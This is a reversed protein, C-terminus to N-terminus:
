FPKLSLLRLYDVESTKMIKHKRNLWGFLMSRVPYIIGIQWTLWYYHYGNKNKFIIARSTYSPLSALIADPGYGLWAINRHPQRWSSDTFQQDQKGNYYTQEDIIEEVRKWNEKDVMKCLRCNQPCFPTPTWKQPSTAESTIQLSLYNSILGVEPMNIKDPDTTSSKDFDSIKNFANNALDEDFPNYWALLQYEDPPLNPFDHHSAIHRRYNKKDGFFVPISISQGADIYKYYTQNYYVSDMDIERSERHVEIYINDKVTYFSFYIMKRGKHQTGPLILAHKRNDTNTFTLNFQIREGISHSNQDCSLTLHLPIYKLDAHATISLFCSLLIVVFAKM